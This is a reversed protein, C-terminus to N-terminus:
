NEVNEYKQFYFKRFFIRVSVRRVKVISRIEVHWYFKRLISVYNVVADTIFNGLTCQQKRCNITGELETSTEGIETNCREKVEEIFPQLEALTDPDANM